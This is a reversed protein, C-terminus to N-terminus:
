EAPIFSARQDNERRHVGHYTLTEDPSAIVHSFPRAVRDVSAVRALDFSECSRTYYAARTRDRGSAPFAKSRSFDPAYGAVERGGRRTRPLARSRARAHLRQLLYLHVALRRPLDQM